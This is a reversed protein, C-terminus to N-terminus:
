WTKLAARVLARFIEPRVTATTADAQVRAACAVGFTCPVHLDNVWWGYTYARPRVVGHVKFPLVLYGADARDYLYPPNCSSVLPCNDYAGGKDRYTVRAIFSSAVASSKHLSKATSRIVAALPDASALKGGNMRGFFSVARPVTLLQKAYVGAYLRSMDSLTTTVSGSFRNGCGLTQSIVTDRMGIVRAYANVNDRGYRVDIAQTMRNDSVAMMLKLGSALTTSAQNSPSNTGPGHNRRHVERDV